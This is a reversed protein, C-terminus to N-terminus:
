KLFASEVKSIIAIIDDAEKEGWGESIVLNFHEEMAKFANPTHPEAEPDGKYLPNNWPHKGARNQFWEFTYPLAGRYCPNLSLGEASLAACFEAKSCSLKSSDVKLRWWWYSHAAGPLLEPIIISSFGGIGKAKLLQVFAQRKGVIAPLKKLQERGIAAHLEDMNFNLSSIVNGNPNEIGFPKGRDSAQRVAKYLEYDKTFVMGGQGGSCFHKGFMISFASIDGFSGVYKGNIAAAHSQSCDEVVPLKHKKAVAMIGEIDAPEGGIHAIIIASTRPTIVAEVQEPGTNYRGPAADAIVPICSQEVIPMIGGPDTVAGVVVESFPEPKLAKLAVHVSTTGSNVGDAYGGGLFDAFEQCFAEEEQGNYGFANGSTISKDFLREAAKKEEIGFHGRSPWPETRLKSGGNVALNEKLSM